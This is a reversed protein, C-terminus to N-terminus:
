KALPHNCGNLHEMKRGQLAGSGIYIGSPYTAKYVGYGEARRYGNSAKKKAARGEPTSLYKRTTERGKPSNIYTRGAARQCDKCQKQLGDKTSRNKNFANTEKADKCTCCRKM